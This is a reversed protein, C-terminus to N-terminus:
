GKLVDRGFQDNLALWTRVVVTYDELYLLIKDGSSLYDRKRKQVSAELVLEAADSYPIWGTSIKTLIAIVSDFTFSASNPKFILLQLTETLREDCFEIANRVSRNALKRREYAHEIDADMANAAEIAKQQTAASFLDNAAMVRLQGTAHHLQGRGTNFKDFISDYDAIATQAIKNIRQNESNAKQTLAIAEELLATSTKSGSKKLLETLEKIRTDFFNSNTM